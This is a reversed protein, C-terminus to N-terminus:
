PKPTRARRPQKAPRKAASSRTAADRADAWDFLDAQQRRSERALWTRDRIAEAVLRDVFVVPGGANILALGKVFHSRYGTDSLPHPGGKVSEIELHDEGSGLYDRTHKIALKATKGTLPHQWTTEYRSTRAARERATQEAKQELAHRRRAAEAAGAAAQDLMTAAKHRAADLSAARMAQSSGDPWTVLFLPAGTGYFAGNGDYGDADLPIRTIDIRPAAGAPDPSRRAKPEPM